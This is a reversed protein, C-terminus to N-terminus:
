NINEGLRKQIPGPRYLLNGGPNALQFNLSNHITYPKGYTKKRNQKARESNVLAQSRRQNAALKLAASLRKPNLNGIKPL